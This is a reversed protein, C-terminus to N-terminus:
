LIGSDLETHFSGTSLSMRIVDLFPSLFRICGIQILLPDTMLILFNLPVLKAVDSSCWSFYYRYFLSLSAINQRRALSELTADLSLDVTRFIRKKLKDLMDSYYNPAGAWNHCCYEM